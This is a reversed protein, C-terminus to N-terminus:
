CVHFKNDKNDKNDKNVKNVKNVKNDKNADAAGEKLGKKYLRMFEDIETQDFVVGDIKIEINGNLPCVCHGDIDFKDGNYPDMSYLDPHKVAYSDQECIYRLLKEFHPSYFSVLPPTSELHPYSGTEPEEVFSNTMGFIYRRAIERRAPTM